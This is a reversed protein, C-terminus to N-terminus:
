PLAAGLHTRVIQVDNADVVGNGDIDAFINYPQNRAANVLTFDQSNVVGDDNFDGLLVKLTQSFGSGGTLANGAADKLANAGTGALTTPFTGLALPSISWVLTNTGVGSLGTASVGSLSAASATAIAKSFVVQIGTIQWPLRNRLSGALNYTQAGWQVSYSVVTPATTDIVIDTNAGLSGAAGPTPLLLNAATTSADQITGGNLLLAGNSLADLRTSNQGAAVVYVFTLISSGSGSAYSAAGGSNLALQPTGIVNVAKNFMVTIAISAGMTYSGNATTAGISTIAAPSGINTLSFSANSVVGTVSASVSYNGAFGNATFAAATAVGLANTLATTTNTHSDAFTGSAGSGPATFTVTVGQLLNSGSDRVTAQLQAGFQTSITTSQSAGATAAISAASGLNNTLSFTANPTVGPTSATISYAGATGNATFAAATAVGLANTVATTVSTHSDAFTGSAGSDPATFTVTVGPVLNAGSDKVITQLQVGFQTSITASQSAGATAAISAAGGANNTLAFTANPTVGPTSATVSYTSATGNATFAAATAIGSPNTIATTVNTHSDAFTGSAASGPATFTVTVGSVLNSGSDKVTAQLQMGFQTSVTTSQTAGATAAISAPNGTSNSLSFSANPSVGPASASVTYSGATGNATFAAATAIGSGNTVATTTNTGTGTFTGSANSAPATFTVTVGPVPNSGADKVTAQLQTAFQTSINTSQSAGTTAAISSATQTVSANSDSGTAATGLSTHVADGGGYASATNTVTLASNSPVSVNIDIVPFSSGATIAQTSTCMAAQTGTGSCNWTASTPVFSSITYGTPLSDSVSTTGSTTGAANHVTVVYQGTSGQTLNGTHTKTVSLSPAVTITTPDSATPSNSAGGGTVSAQNTLANAGTTATSSVALTATISDYSSGQALSDSRTCTKSSVTCTWNNGSLTSLTMGAPPIETVTVTGATPGPGSNAATITYTATGGQGFSGSHQKQITLTPQNTTFTICASNITAGSSATGFYFSWTGNPSLGNSAFASAFTASGESGAYQYPGTPAPSSYTN